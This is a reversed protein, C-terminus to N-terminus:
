AFWWRESFKMGDLNWNGALTGDHQVSQNTAFVYNAFMPVVTGGEDRVISQMETYMEARKDADLVARAEQLLKNFREHEWFTDNWDADAAYATSFMWDATVRGSWYCACWGKTMWVDSWYGDNPERVVNIDIGARAANEKYLVAADVAGPFAADAASLDVQLNEMGAQKLHWKARDPDYGRQELDAHFRNTPSIPTDNGIRGHGRLVTDLVQERDISLKLAMRVNNDDFPAMDTRMPFTYHRFGVVEEVNVNPRQKLLDVTKLDVRDILDVENTMLANTRASADIISLIEVEDFHARDEKWYNPHRKLLAREGPEWAEVMYPGAGIGATADITGDGSDPQIAIHYDSAVYMFDANPAQLKFVVTYKGDKEISEVQELLSRAPSKTEGRHHNFSAIVDDATVEKGNHFEVGQRVHVVWTQADETEWREAIEPTIEGTEIVEGLHNNFAFNTSIIHDNEYTAPDLSDTTSGHGIAVRLRGGKKPAALAPNNIVGSALSVAGLAAAGALFQRRTIRREIFQRELDKYNM